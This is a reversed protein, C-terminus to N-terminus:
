SATMSWRAPRARVRGDAVREAEAGVLQERHPHGVMGRDVARNLEHARPDAVLRGPEGVGHHAPDGLVVEVHQISVRSAECATRWEWGSHITSPAPGHGRGGSRAPRGARRRCRGAWQDGQHRAGAQGRDLLEAARLREFWRGGQGDRHLGTVGAVDRRDALSPRTDLVGARLQDGQGRWPSTSPRSSRQSSRHAPGAALRSEERRQRVLLPARSSALSRWGWREFSTAWAM